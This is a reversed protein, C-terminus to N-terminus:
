IVNTAPKKDTRSVPVIEDAMKEIDEDTKIRETYKKKIKDFYKWIYTGHVNSFVSDDNKENVAIDNLGSPVPITLGNSNNLFLAFSDMDYATIEKNNYEKGFVIQLEKEINTTIKEIKRGELFYLFDHIKKYDKLPIELESSFIIDGVDKKDRFGYGKDYGPLYSLECRIKEQSSSIDIGVWLLLYIINIIPISFYVDLLNTENNVYTVFMERNLSGAKPIGEFFVYEFGCDQGFKDDHLDDFEDSWIKYYTNHEDIIEDAIISSEMFDSVYTEQEKKDACNESPNFIESLDKNKVLRCFAQTLLLKEIKDAKFGSEIYRKSYQSIMNKMNPPTANAPKKELWPQIFNDVNKHWDEIDKSNLLIKLVEYYIKAICMTANAFIKKNEKKQKHSLNNRSVDIIDKANRGLYDMYDPFILNSENEILAHCVTIGKCHVERVGHIYKRIEVSSIDYRMLIKEKRDWLVCYLGNKSLAFDYLEVNFPKDSDLIHNRKTEDFLLKINDDDKIRKTHIVDDENFQYSIDFLSLGLCRGLEQQVRNCFDSEPREATVNRLDYEDYFSDFKSVDIDIDMNTGIPSHCFKMNQDDALSMFVYGDNRSSHMNINYVPQNLSTRTRIFISDSVGFVSHLGIGFSSTPRLWDPMEEVTKDRGRMGTRLIREQLDEKSIGTGNDEITFRATKEEPQHEIKMFVKYYDFVSIDSFDFPQINQYDINGDKDKHANQLFHDWRGSKIDTWFRRKLADVSNQLLERIFVFRNNYLSYSEILEYAKENSFSFRMNKKSSVTENGDVLIKYTLSPSFTEIHEMSLKDWHLKINKVLEEIWGLWNQTELLIRDCVDQLEKQQEKPNLKSFLPVRQLEQKIRKSKIDFNVAILDKKLVFSNVSEHKYYHVYNNKTLEGFVEMSVKNFRGNDLDCLDGLCLMVAIFRPHFEYGFLSDVPELINMIEDFDIDHSFCIKGIVDQIRPPLRGDGSIVVNFYKGFDSQMPIKKSREPHKRRYFESALLIVDRYVSVSWNKEAPNLWEVGSVHRAAQKLSDDSSDKCNELYNQFSESNWDNELEKGQILMGLDHMYACVMLMWTDSPSLKEIRKRGLLREVFSIINESHEHSHDSYHPFMMIVSKLNQKMNDRIIHFSDTLKQANTDHERFNNLHRELTFPLNLDYDDHSCNNSM